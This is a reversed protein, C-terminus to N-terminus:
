KVNEAPRYPTRAADALHEPILHSILSTVARAPYWEGNLRALCVKAMAKMERKTGQAPCLAGGGLVEIFLGWPGKGDWKGLKCIQMTVIPVPKEHPCKM